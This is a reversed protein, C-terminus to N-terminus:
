PEAESSLPQRSIAQLELLALILVTVAWMFFPQIYIMEFLPKGIFFLWSLFPFALILIRLIKTRMNTPSWLDFSRFLFVGPIVTFMYDQSHTHPSAILMALMSIAACSEFAFHEIRGKIKQLSPYGWVWLACLLLLTSGFFILVSIQVLRDEAGLLLLLEGRLNQMVQPVVGGVNKSTQGYVLAKPFNMVNKMGLLFITFAGLLSSSIAFGAGYRWRGLIVGIAVIAPVYQLKGLLLASELGASFYRQARLLLLCLLMLPFQFLATQALEFSLWTPFSAFFAVFLFARSFRAQAFDRSLYWLVTCILILASICWLAWGNTLGLGAIPLVFVFSQPPYFYFFNLEPVVPATLATIALGQVVPDYVDVQHGRLCEAALNAANYHSVFDNIYPRGDILRAFLIGQTLYRFIEIYANAAWCLLLCFYAFWFYKRLRENSM